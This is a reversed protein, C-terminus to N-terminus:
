KNRWGQGNRQEQGVCKATRKEARKSGIERLGLEQRIQNAGVYDGNEALAHAKAFLPFTEETVIDKVRGRSESMLEQWENFNLNEFAREMAEHREDNYYPGQTTFDGQYASATTIGTTVILGLVGVGLVYKYIKM